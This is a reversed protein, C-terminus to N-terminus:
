GNYAEWLKAVDLKKMGMMANMARKKGEPDKGGVTEELAKPVIQWSVGYADKVWGCQEAEPVRSLKEWFYDVEEQDACSVTFSIACNDMVFKHEKMNSEMAGFPQGALTFASYNIKGKQEEGGEDGYRSIFDVSSDKFVSVYYNIAEEVKGFREGVFLFAPSILAKSKGVSIQWSVGYKDAVWAYKESFPYKDLPMMVSGGEVLKNYYNEVEEASACNIFFSVSPNFEFVGPGGDLCIFRTGALEFVGNIVKGEMGALPGESYGSPYYEISVIKSNPFVSTYFKMAEESNNESFWLSPQIKQMNMNNNREMQLM